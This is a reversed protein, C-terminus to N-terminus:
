NPPYKESWEENFSFSDVPCGIFLDEGIQSIFDKMELKMIWQEPINDKGLLLGLINGTIAGTSDTDGGHNVSLVIGKEFSDQYHLSCYIAIALAEEGVWGGGLKEVNEFTPKRNHYHQIANKIARSTEEHNEWKELIEFTNNISDMLSNGDRIYAIIAAFAGASLYGSPHTHTIAALEAGYQFADEPKFSKILGVPAVRMVGGCGKSDNIRREITGRKGSQLASLCINGPARRKYLERQKIVWGDLRYEFGPTDLLEYNQTHLWRLYSGHSIQLYAGWIGKQVSRHITRLMAEATFLTMQTDDTIRGIGDSFEVYDQVGGPGHQALIQNLNMFETPAGLADGIAGGLLCGTFYEQSLRDKKQPIISEGQKIEGTGIHAPCLEGVALSELLARKRGDEVELYKFYCGNRM